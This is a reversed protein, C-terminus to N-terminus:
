AGAPGLLLAASGSLRAPYRRAAPELAGCERFDLKEIREIRFRGQVVLQRDQIDLGAILGPSLEVDFHLHEGVGPQVLLLKM